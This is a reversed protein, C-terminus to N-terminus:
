PSHLLSHLVCDLYNIIIVSAHTAILGRLDGWEWPVPNKGHGSFRVDQRGRDPVVVHVGVPLRDLHVRAVEPAPPVVEMDILMFVM